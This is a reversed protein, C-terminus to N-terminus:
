GSTVFTALITTGVHTDISLSPLCLLVTCDFVLNPCQFPMVSTEHKDVQSRSSRALLRQRGMSVDIKLSMASRQCVAVRCREDLGFINSINAPVVCFIEQLGFLRTAPASNYRKTQKHQAKQPAVKGRPKRSTSTAGKSPRRQLGTITQISLQPGPTEKTISGDISSVVSSPLFLFWFWEGSPGWSAM